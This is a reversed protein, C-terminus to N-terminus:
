DFLEKLIQISKPKQFGSLHLECYAIAIELLRQRENAQLPLASLSDFNIGLLKKFQYFNNGSIVNKGSSVETYSGELLDFGFAEEEPLDPYFGLFRTLNLLFLLHFNAIKDHVDLWILGTELYEYLSNNREEEKISYSLMESLFMVVSQKIIDKYVSTYPYSIQVEKISNLAGRRSHNAHIKLQTLPQFYAVKIGGKRAKLVGKILYTKLGEEQTYCKVILSSDSYKLSSLVIAKTSVIAM